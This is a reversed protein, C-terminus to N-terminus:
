NRAGCCFTCVSRGSSKEPLISYKFQTKSHCLFSAFKILKARKVLPGPNEFFRITFVWLKRKHGSSCTLAVIAVLRGCWKSDMLTHQPMMPCCEIPNSTNGLIGGFCSGGSIIFHIRLFTTYWIIWVHHHRVGNWGLLVNLHLNRFYISLFFLMLLSQEVVLSSDRLSKRPSM